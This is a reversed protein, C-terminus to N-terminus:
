RSFEDHWGRNLFGQHNAVRLFTDIKKKIRLFMLSGPVDRVKGFREPSM